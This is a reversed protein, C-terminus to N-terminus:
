RKCRGGLFCLPDIRDFQLGCLAQTGSSVRPGWGHPALSNVRLQTTYGKHYGFKNTQIQYNCFPMNKVEVNLFNEIYCLTDGLSNLYTWVVLLSMWLM